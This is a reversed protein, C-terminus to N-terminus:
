SASRSSSSRKILSICNTHVKFALLQCMWLTNQLHDYSTKNKGKILSLRFNTFKILVRVEWLTKSVSVTKQYHTDFLQLSSCLITVEAGTCIAPFNADRYPHSNYRIPWSFWIETRIPQGVNLVVNM